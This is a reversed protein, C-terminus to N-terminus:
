PYVDRENLRFLLEYMMTKLQNEWKIIESDFYM